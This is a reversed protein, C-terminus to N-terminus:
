IKFKDFKYGVGAYKIPQIKQPQEGTAIGFNTFQHQSKQNKLKKLKVEFNAVKIPKKKRRSWLIKAVTASM